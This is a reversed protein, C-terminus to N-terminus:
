SILITAFVTSLVSKNKLDQGRAKEVVLIGRKMNTLCNMADRSTKCLM